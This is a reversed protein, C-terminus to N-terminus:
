KCFVYEVVALLFIANSLRKFNIIGTSFYDKLDITEVDSILKMNKEDINIILVTKNEAKKYDLVIDEYMYDLEITEGYKQNFCEKLFDRFISWDEIEKKFSFECLVDEAISDTDFYREKYIKKLDVM